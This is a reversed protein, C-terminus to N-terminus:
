RDKKEADTSKNRFNHSEDVVQVDGHEPHASVFVTFYSAIISLRADDDIADHLADGLRQRGTNDLYGAGLGEQEARSDHM